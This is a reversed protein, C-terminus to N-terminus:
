IYPGTAGALKETNTAEDRKGTFFTIRVKDYQLIEMGRPPKHLSNIDFQLNLELHALGLATPPSSYDNHTDGMKLSPHKKKRDWSCSQDIM